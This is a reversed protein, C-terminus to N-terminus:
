QIFCLSSSSFGKGAGVRVLLEYAAAELENSDQSTSFPEAPHQQTEGLPNPM